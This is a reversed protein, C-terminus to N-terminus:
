ASKCKLLHRVLRYEVVGKGHTYSKFKEELDRKQANGKDAEGNQDRALRGRLISTRKDM